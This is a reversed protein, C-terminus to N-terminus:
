DEAEQEIQEEAGVEQDNVPVSFDLVSEFARLFARKREDTWSQSGRPIQHLLGVLGPPLGDLALGSAVAQAAASSSTPTRGTTRVRARVVRPPRPARAAEGNASPSSAPIPLGAYKWLGILLSAMGRRQGDPQYGRFAEAVRDSSDVSPDAYQLVDAYVSRLWEQLRSRYEADGRTQRFDQFQQTPNGKADILELTVLSQFTRRVLSEPVGVRMLTDSTVPVGFGRDRWVDLVTVFAAATSYPGSGEPQLPM